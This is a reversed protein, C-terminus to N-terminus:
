SLHTSGIEKMKGGAVADGGLYDVLTQWDDDSPVHCGAPAINRSDNVSYWNYLRGYTAVNNVDNDYECYAGTTLDLWATGDTVNPIADGNRYHTVKLNEVMWVQNGITVTHYANGDIDVVAGPFLTAFSVENGYGTAASNTAYARVYYTTSATLDIIFSAFGGAGAGDTTKNDAVTPTPNTSWCVGRAIITDGGDSSINGGCKATTETIETIDATALVPVLNPCDPPPGEKYKYSILYLIDLLDVNGDNNADGCIGAFSIATPILITICLLTMLVRRM